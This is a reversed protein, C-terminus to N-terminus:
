HGARAAQNVTGTATLSVGGAFDPWTATGSEEDLDWYYLLNGTLSAGALQAGTLGEGSNWLTDMEAGTFTRDWIGVKDIREEGTLTGGANNGFGLDGTASTNIFGTGVNTGDFLLASVSYVRLEMASAGGGNNAFSAVLLYWTNATPTQGAVGFYNSGNSYAIGFQNLNGDYQLFWGDTGVSGGEVRVYANITGVPVVTPYVWAAVTYPTSNAPNFRGATNAAALRATGTFAAAYDAAAAAPQTDLWRRANRSM